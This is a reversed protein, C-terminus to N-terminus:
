LSGHPVHGGIDARREFRRFALRLVFSRIYSLTIIIVTIPIAETVPIGFVFLVSQGIVVGIITNAAAEMHALRTEPHNIM